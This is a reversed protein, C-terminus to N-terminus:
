STGPGAIYHELQKIIFQQHSILSKVIDGISLVGLLRDGDMVPLHRVRKDTMLAMCEEITQEPRVYVVRATMFEGVPIDRPPRDTQVIKWAFDRESFIGVLKGAEQVVLSGVRKEAMLRVADLVSADPAVSWVASGKAEVLERATIM